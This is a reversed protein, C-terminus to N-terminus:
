YKKSKKLFLLALEQRSEQIYEDDTLKEILPSIIKEGSINGYYELDLAAAMNENKWPVDYQDLKSFIGTTLWDPFVDGIKRRDIM